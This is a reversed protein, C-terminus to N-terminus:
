SYKHKHHKTLSYNPLGLQGMVQLSSKSIYQNRLHIIQFKNMLFIQIIGYKNSELLQSRLCNRLISFLIWTSIFNRYCEQNAYEQYFLIIYCISLM